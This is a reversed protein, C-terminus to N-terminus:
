VHAKEKISIVRLGREAAELYVAEEFMADIEIVGCDTTVIYTKNVFM